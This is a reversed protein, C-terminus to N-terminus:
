FNFCVAQAGNGDRSLICPGSVAFAAVTMGYQLFLCGQTSPSKLFCICSPFSADFLRKMGRKLKWVFALLKMLSLTHPRCCCGLRWEHMNSDFDEIVFSDDFDLVRLNDANEVELGLSGIGPGEAKDHTCQVCQGCCHGFRLGIGRSTRRSRRPLRASWRSRRNWRCLNPCTGFLERLNWTQLNKVSSLKSQLNELYARKPPNGHNFQGKGLLNWRTIHCEFLFISIASMTCWTPWSGQLLHLATLSVKLLMWRHPHQASCHYKRNGRFPVAPWVLFWIKIAGLFLMFKM